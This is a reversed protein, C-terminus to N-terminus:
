RQSCNVGKGNIIPLRRGNPCVYTGNGLQAAVCNNFQRSLDAARGTNNRQYGRCRREANTRRLQPSGCNTAGPVCDSIEGPLGPVTKAEASVAAVAGLLALGVLRLSRRSM